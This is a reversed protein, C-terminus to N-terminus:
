GFNLVDRNAPIPSSFFFTIIKRERVFTKIEELFSKCESAFSKLEKHEHRPSVTLKECPVYALSRLLTLPETFNLDITLSRLFTEERRMTKQGKM